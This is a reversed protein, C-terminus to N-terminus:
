PICGVLRTNTKLKNQIKLIQIIISVTKLLKLNLKCEILNIHHFEVKGNSLFNNKVGFTFTLENYFNLRPTILFCVFVSVSM